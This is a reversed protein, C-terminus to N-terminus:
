KSGGPEGDIRGPEDDGDEEDGSSEEDEVDADDGGPGAHEPPGREGDDDSDAQEPPGREGDDGDAWPPGAHDPRNDAGPNNATVWESVMQGVSGNTTNNSALVEHVFSSVRLGFADAESTENEDGLTVTENASANEYTATIEVTVTTNNAPAPLSVTGNADTAYTGTGAYTVNEDTTAVDVTANEVATSNNTVTVTAGGDDNESVDVVLGDSGAAMAAPAVATLVLMATAALVISRHKARMEVSYDGTVWM